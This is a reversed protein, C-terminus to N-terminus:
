ISQMPKLARIYNKIEDASRRIKFYCDGSRIICPDNKTDLFFLDHRIGKEDTLRIHLMVQDKRRHFFSRRPMGIFKEFEGLAAASLQFRIPSQAPFDSYFVQHDRIEEPFIKTKVTLVCLLAASLFIASSVLAAITTKHKMRRIEQGKSHTQM